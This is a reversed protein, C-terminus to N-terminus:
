RANASSSKLALLAAKANNLPNSGGLQKSLVNQIGALEM